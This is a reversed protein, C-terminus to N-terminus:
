RAMLGKGKGGNPVCGGKGNLFNREEKRGWTRKINKLLEKVRQRRLSELGRGLGSETLGSRQIRGIAVLMLEEQGRGV